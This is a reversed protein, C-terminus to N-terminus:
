KVIPAPRWQAEVPKRMAWRWLTEPPFPLMMFWHELIALSVLTAVFTLSAAEFGGIQNRFSAQWTLTALTTAVVVSVPFLPNMSKRAFYTQLYQLHPPLFSESLNRAGLFINLKASQRMLWLTLFTWLGTLNEGQWTLMVVAAALVILALEHHLVASVAFKARRWGIAGVPCATRRPGTIYGLLFAVEQWAWVLLSCSFALYADTIRTGDKTLALGALAFALLITAGAMTWKFTRRPLSDLYLIAGTSFWWVFITYIFPWGHEIM